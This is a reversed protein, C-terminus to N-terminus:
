IFVISLSLPGAPTAIPPVIQFGAKVMESEKLFINSEPIVVDFLHIKRYTSAIKGDDDILVHCNYFKPKLILINDDFKVIYM